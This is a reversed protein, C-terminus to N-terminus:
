FLKFIVTFHLSTIYGMSIPDTYHKQSDGIWFDVNKRTLM